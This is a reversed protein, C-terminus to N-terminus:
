LVSLNDVRLYETRGGGLIGGSGNWREGDESRCRM